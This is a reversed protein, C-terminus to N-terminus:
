CMAPSQELNFVHSIPLIDVPMALPQGSNFIDIIDARRRLAFTDAVGQRWFEHWRLPLKQGVSTLKQISLMNQRRHIFRYYFSSARKIFQPDLIGCCFQPNLQLAKHLVVIRTVQRRRSQPAQTTRPVVCNEDTADKLGCAQSWTCLKRACNRVQGGDLELYKLIAKRLLLSSFGSERKEKALLHEILRQVNESIVVTDQVAPESSEKPLLLLDVDEPLDLVAESKKRPFFSSIKPMGTIMKETQEEKIKESIAKRCHFSYGLSPILQEWEKDGFARLSAGIIHNKRFSEIIEELINDSISGKCTKAIRQLFLCCDDLSWECVPLSM